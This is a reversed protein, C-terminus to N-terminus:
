FAKIIYKSKHFPNIIPVQRQPRMAVDPTPKKFSSKFTFTGETMDMFVESQSFSVTIQDDVNSGGTPSGIQDVKLIKDATGGLGDWYATSLVDGTQYGSGANLIEQVIIRTDMFGGGNSPDYAEYRIKLRMGSGSGGTMDEEREQFDGAATWFLQGAQRYGPDGIGATFYAGDGGSTGGGSPDPQGADDVFKNSWFIEFSILSGQAGGGLGKGYGGAVTGSGGTNGGTFDDQVNNIINTTIKHRHTNTTGGTPLYQDVRAASTRVDLVGTAQFIGGTNPSGDGPLGGWNAPDNVQQLTASNLADYPSPWWVDFPVVNSQFEYQSLPFGAGETLESLGGVPFGTPFGQEIIWTDLNTWDDGYYFSLETGFDNSSVRDFFNKWSQRVKSVTDGGEADYPGGPNTDESDEYQLIFPDTPPNPRATRFMMRGGPVNGWIILPYGDNGDPQALIYIHNHSPAAVPIDSLPGITANVQSSAPIIFSLSTTISELQQMRVTGLEFFPSTTGTTGSGFVQELPDAGAAGVKDFYWFGGSNGPDFVSNGGVPLAASNGRQNDVFGTGCLRRNRYDPLNFNGTYTTYTVTEGGIVQSTTTAQGNGGYTNGITEWLAWYQAASLSRGDCQIFGHYRTGIAGDLDGYTGGAEKPVPLVTGMPYGDFKDTKKSYWSGQQTSVVPPSAYTSVGWTFSNNSGTGVTVQTNVTSSLAGTQLSIQFSTNEPGFTRPGPTPTDFDISILSGATSSTITIPVNIGTVQVASSSYYQFPALGSRSTPATFSAVSDPGTGTRVEWTAIERDGVQIKANVTTLTSTSSQAYLQIQDGNTVSAPFTGLSGDNIRVRVDSSTTSMLTVPVSIGAGLGSIGGDPKKDSAILTDQLVGTKAPFSFQNPNTSPNAGTRVVWTSGDGSAINVSMTTPTNAFESSEVRLQMYQGNEVTGSSAWASGGSLVEFGDSNTTTTNTSAVKFQGGGGITCLGPEIMGSLPIIEDSYVFTELPQGEKDSFVPFPEPKNVPASKTKLEWREYTTGVGLTILTTQDNFLGTRGRIQIRDGNQVGPTNTNMWAGFGNGTDFRAAYYDLSNANAPVVRNTSIFTAAVTTDTLGSITVITELNRSGDAYTYLTNLEAKDVRALPYPDPTFDEPVTQIQWFTSLDGIKVAVTLTTDWTDPAKFKFQVYDGESVYLPDNNPAYSYSM